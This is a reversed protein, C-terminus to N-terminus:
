AARKALGTREATVAFPIDTMGPTLLGNEELLEPVISKLKEILSEMTETGTALGLVDDSTAVGYPHRKTGNPM